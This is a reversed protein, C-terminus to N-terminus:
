RKIVKSVASTVLVKFLTPAVDVEVAVVEVVLEKFRIQVADAVVAVAEVVLEKFLVHAADVEVDVAEVVLERPRTSEVVDVEAGEAVVDLEKVRQLAAPEPEVLAEVVVLQNWSHPSQCYHEM